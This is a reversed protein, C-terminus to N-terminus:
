EANALTVDTLSPDATVNVTLVELTGLPVTNYQVLEPVVTAASKVPPALEPETVMLLLVALKENVRALSAVVSPDSVMATSICVPDSEPGTTAVAAVTVTLSM